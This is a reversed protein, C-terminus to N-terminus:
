FDCFIKLRDEFGRTETLSVGLKNEYAININIPRPPHKSFHLKPCPQIVIHLYECGCIQIYLLSIIIEKKILDCLALVAIM